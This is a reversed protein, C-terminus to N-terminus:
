DHIGLTESRAWQLAGEWAATDIDPSCYLRERAVVDVAARYGDLHRDSIAVIPIEEM